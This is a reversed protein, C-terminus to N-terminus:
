PPSGARGTTAAAPVWDGSPEALAVALRRFAAAPLEEPRMSPDIGAAAFAATLRERDTLSRLSNRLMKRRQAFALDVVEVIAARETPLPADHRRSVRVTVSDVNPIPYFVTRPVVAVVEVDAVLRLKVSVGSYLADAPHAAWREGVERQVMVFLDTIAGSHLARFVIPTAVNYPLNAILRGPEALLEDFDVHLADAHVIEVDRRDGLVGRLARVLGADIEVTVVHRAHDALALTLSGLGPGIELVVDDPGVRADRVIKRVTNPDVVFNQGSSRRLALDHEELLRRVAAATLLRAETGSEM